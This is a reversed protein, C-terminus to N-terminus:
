ICWNTRGSVSNPAWLLLWGCELVHRSFQKNLCLFACGHCGLSQREDDQRPHDAERGDEEDHHLMSRGGNILANPVILRHEIGPFVLPPVRLLSARAPRLGVKGSARSGSASVTPLAEEPASAPARM